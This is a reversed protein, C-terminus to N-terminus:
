HAPVAVDQPEIALADALRTLAAGWLQLLAQKMRHTNPHQAKPVRSRKAGLQLQGPDTARTSTVSTIDVEPAAAGGGARPGKKGKTLRALLAALSVRAEDVPTREAVQDLIVIHPELDLAKAVETAVADEMTSEPANRYRSVASRSVGLEKAVRYDSEWGREAKLRDIWEVAKMFQGLYGAVIDLM